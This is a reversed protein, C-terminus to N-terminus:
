NKYKLNGFWSLLAQGDSLATQATDWRDAGLVVTTLHALASSARWVDALHCIRQFFAPVRRQDFGESM